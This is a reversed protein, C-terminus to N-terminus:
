VLYMPSQLESTHEESRLIHAQNEQHEMEHRREQEEKRLGNLPIRPGDGHQSQEDYRQADDIDKPEDLRVEVRGAKMYAPQIKGRWESHAAYEYCQEQHLQRLPGQHRQASRVQLLCQCMSSM